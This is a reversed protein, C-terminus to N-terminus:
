SSPITRVRKYVIDFKKEIEHEHQKLAAEDHMMIHASLKCASANGAFEFSRLEESNTLSNSKDAWYLARIIFLAGYSLLFYM